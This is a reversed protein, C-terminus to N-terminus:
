EENDRKKEEVERYVADHEPCNWPIIERYDRPIVIGDYEPDIYKQHSDVKYKLSFDSRDPKTDHTDM